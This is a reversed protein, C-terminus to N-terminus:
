QLKDDPVRVGTREELKDAFLQTIPDGLVQARRPNPSAPTPLPPKPPPPAPSDAGIGAGVRVVPTM